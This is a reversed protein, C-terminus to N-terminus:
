EPPPEPRDLLSMPGFSRPRFLSVAEQEKVALVAVRVVPDALADEISTSPPLRVLADLLARRVDLLQPADKFAAGVMNFVEGPFIM